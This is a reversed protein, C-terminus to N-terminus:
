DIYREYIMEMQKIINELSYTKILDLSNEGFSKRLDKSEYLTKVLCAFDEIDNIGTIYGNKGHTVLDHNGRCDTVILPLGIAMAMMVNVPLGEQRSSSVAIDSLHMIDGLDDRYGLFHVNEEIGLQKVLVQYQELLDGTGALLLKINPLNYKLIGIVNILLDQHKRYSLEGAFMLIFDNENYGYKTRFKSKTELTQPKFDNLDIGVGNVLRIVKSHFNNAVKYYDEDNTTILCDTYNSLLKEIPYYVLWNIISAGKFFHFGHASYLVKTGNKRAARAALRTLVGGVPTHCHILKYKNTDIIRKLQKYATINDKKIPSRSFPINHKVDTFPIHSNGNSAVHVEYGRSKFWKLFPIHFSLIHSDVTATFLVKKLNQM